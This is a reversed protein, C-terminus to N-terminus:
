VVCDTLVLDTLVERRSRVLTAREAVDYCTLPWIGYKLIRALAMMNSCVAFSVTTFIRSVRKHVHNISQMRARARPHLTILSKPPAPPPGPPAPRGALQPGPTYDGRGLGLGLGGGGWIVWAAWMHQIADVHVHPDEDTSDLRALITSSCELDM